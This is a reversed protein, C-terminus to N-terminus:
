HSVRGFRREHASEHARVKSTFAGESALETSVWEARVREACDSSDGAVLVSRVLVSGIVEASSSRRFRREEGRPLVRLYLARVGHLPSQDKLRIRHALLFDFPVRERKRLSQGDTGGHSEGHRVGRARPNTRLSRREISRGDTETGDVSDLDSVDIREHTRGFIREGVARLALADEQVQRRHFRGRARAHAAVVRANRGSRQGDAIRVQEDRGELTRGLERGLTTARM